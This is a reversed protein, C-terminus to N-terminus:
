VTNTSTSSISKENAVSPCGITLRVVDRHNTARRVVHAAEVTMNSRTIVCTKSGGYLRLMAADVAAPRHESNRSRPSSYLSEHSQSTSAWPAEMEPAYNDDSSIHVPTQFRSSMSPSTVPYFCRAASKRRGLRSGSSICDKSAVLRSARGARQAEYVLDTRVLYGNGVYRVRVRKPLQSSPAIRPM